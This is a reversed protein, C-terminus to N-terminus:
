RGLTFLFSVNANRNNLNLFDQAYLFARRRILLERGDRVKKTILQRLQEVSAIKIKSTIMEVNEMKFPKQAKEHCSATTTSVAGDHVTTFYPATKLTRFQFNVVSRVMNSVLQMSSHHDMQLIIECIKYCMLWGSM